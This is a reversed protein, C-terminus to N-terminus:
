NSVKKIIKWCQGIARVRVRMGIVKQGIRKKQKKPKRQRINLLWEFLHVHFTKERRSFQFEDCYGRYQRRNGQLGFASFLLRSSIFEFESESRSVIEAAPALPCCPRVLHHAAAQFASKRYSHHQLTTLEILTPFSASCPSPGNQTEPGLSDDGMCAPSADTLAQGM